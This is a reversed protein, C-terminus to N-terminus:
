RLIIFILGALIIVLIAVAAKKFTYVFRGYWSDAIFNKPNSPEYLIILEEGTYHTKRWLSSAGSMGADVTIEQGNHDTFVITPIFVSSKTAQYRNNSIIRATAQIASATFRRTVLQYYIMCVLLITLLMM